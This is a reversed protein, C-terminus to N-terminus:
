GGRLAAVQVARGAARAAAALQAPLAGSGAILAIGDGM